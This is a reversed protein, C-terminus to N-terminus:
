VLRRIAVQVRLGTQLKAMSVFTRRTSVATTGHHACSQAATTVALLLVIFMSGWFGIPLRM